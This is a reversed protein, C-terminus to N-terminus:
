EDASGGTLDLLLANLRKLQAQVDNLVKARKEVDTPQVDTPQVDTPAVPRPPSVIPAGRQTPDDIETITTDPESSSESSDDVVLPEPLAQKEKEKEKEKEVV